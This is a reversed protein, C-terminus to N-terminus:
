NNSCVANNIFFAAPAPDLGTDTGNFGVSVTGGNAAITGNYAANTVTVNQGTQTFTGNWGSQIGEGAAPWTFTLTWANIASTGKNTLTISAGFGGPWSSSIAYHVACSANSPPPVTFTVPASPLSPNGHTDVAVVNYTYGAGITLGSLNLTTATPSSVLASGGGSTLQYVQYNAVPYTGGTSASWTLTATGSTNSSTSSNLNSAVPQGPAGPATVGTGGSGPIQVVTLSYPAVTVSSASSQTASTIGSANNAFTYVTPSGSATFGNLALNATYSNTPDENDILVDLNGGARRVAHVRVLTNGSTANVLTDGPAGLKSLMQVAYYPAFPTDLPPETVGSGNGGSSFMGYDGYDQAGNVTTPTGPGNHQDWWDVNTVGNELWTMYMDAAFLAGPQTDTDLSSNTETVVIPVNAPNVGAYQQIQAKLTSVIGSIDQPDTLMGAATSGGPYYHVIVCDTKSGLATLVTQNWSQPSTTANTVNDPWFGPTTVVACVHINASAAKMASIYSLVNNAYVSPGCNYTQSPESGITVAGGSAATTCHSDAEWNAGYTGNGYVENGVEWYTIGYHNTVDANQVWAAALAPTGTGYNVTIIPNTGAAQATSMFNAFSTNPADYGTTAVNTQWNYIDSYSGGPYRLADIGAAKILGPQAADNMNGDYVATNLGIANSSISGLGATGNVTVAVATAANAPAAVGAPLTLAAGTALALALATRRSGSTRTRRLPM